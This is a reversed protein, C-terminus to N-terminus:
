VQWHGYRMPLKRTMRYFLLINIIEVHGHSRLQDRQRAVHEEVGTQEAVLQHM